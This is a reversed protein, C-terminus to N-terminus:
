RAVLARPSVLAKFRRVLEDRLAWEGREMAWRHNWAFLPKLWPCCRRLLPKEARVRWDFRVVVGDEFPEIIWEGRGSLDGAAKIVYGGPANDQVVTFCWHLRYPLLGKSVVFYTEGRKRVDMYVEPWWRPLDCPDALVDCVAQPTAGRIRWESLFHFENAQM